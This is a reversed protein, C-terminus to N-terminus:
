YHLLGEMLNIRCLVIIKSVYIEDLKRSNGYGFTPKFDCLGKEINKKKLVATGGEGQLTVYM